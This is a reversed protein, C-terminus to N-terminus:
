EVKFFRLVVTEPYREGSGVFISRTLVQLAPVATEFVPTTKFYVLAPDVREGALLRRMVDPPAHRLGRNRVHILEGGDTELAYRADAETLGDAHILQTDAGGPVVRGAITLEGRGQCTGGVIPVLRRRGDPGSGLEAPEGVVAKVELILTLRLADAM